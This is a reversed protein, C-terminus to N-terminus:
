FGSAPDRNLGPASKRLVVKRSTKEAQALLRTPKVYLAAFEPVFEYAGLMQKQSNQFVPKHDGNKLIEINLGM